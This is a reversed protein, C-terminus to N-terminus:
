ITKKIESQQDRNIKEQEESNSHKECETFICLSECIETFISKTGTFFYKESFNHCYYCNKKFKKGFPECHKTGDFKMFM